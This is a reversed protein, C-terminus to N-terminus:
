LNMRSFTNQSEMYEHWRNFCFAQIKKTISAVYAIQGNHILCLIM